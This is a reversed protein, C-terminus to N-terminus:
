ANMVLMYLSRTQWFRSHVYLQASLIYCVQRVVNSIWLDSLLFFTSLSAYTWPCNIFRLGYKSVAYENNWHRNAVQPAWLHGAPMSTWPAGYEWLCTSPSAACRRFECCPVKQINILSGWIESNLHVYRLHRPPPGGLQSTLIGYQRGTSEGRSRMLIMFNLYNKSYRTGYKLNKDNSSDRRLKDEFVQCLNTITQSHNLKGELAAKHISLFCM